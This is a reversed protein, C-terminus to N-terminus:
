KGGAQALSLLKASIHLGAHEAAATGIEIRVKDGEVKFGIVGGSAVFGESEGVTLVNAGQVAEILKKARKRESGSLFVIQCQAAQQGDSVERVTVQRNAVTTAHAAKDLAPGFPNAGMLCICIPDTPGKFAQAPWDVFKAFNLLYAGKVHYEEATPEAACLMAAAALLLLNYRFKTLM